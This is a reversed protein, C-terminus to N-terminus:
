AADQQVIDIIPTRFNYSSVRHFRLRDYQTIRYYYALTYNPKLHHNKYRQGNQIRQIELKPDRWANCDRHNVSIMFHGSQIFLTQQGAISSVFSDLDNLGRQGLYKIIFM